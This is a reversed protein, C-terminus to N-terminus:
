KRKEWGSKLPREISTTLTPVIAKEKLFSRMDEAAGTLHTWELAATKDLFVPQRDHGTQRVFESPEATIVAFSEIVEGSAKNVWTDYIGAACLLEGSNFSIMNGALDGEYIPEIFSNM